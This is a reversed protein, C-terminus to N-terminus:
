LQAFNNWDQLTRRVTANRKMNPSCSIAAQQIKHCVAHKAIRVSCNNSYFIAQERGSAMDCCKIVLASEAIPQYPKDEVFRQRDEM